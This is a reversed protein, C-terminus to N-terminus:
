ELFICAGFRRKRALNGIIPPKGGVRTVTGDHNDILASDGLQTTPDEIASLIDKRPRMVRRKEPPLNPTRKKGALKKLAATEIQAPSPRVKGRSLHAAQRLNFTFPEPRVGRDFRVLAIQCVRPCIYAYRINKVPDTWRISGMDVSINRTEPPLVQRLAEAVVCYAADSRIGQDIARKTVSVTVRPSLLRAPKRAGARRTTEYSGHNAM